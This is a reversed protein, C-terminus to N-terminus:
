SPEELIAKRAVQAPKGRAFVGIKTHGNKIVHVSSWPRKLESYYTSM